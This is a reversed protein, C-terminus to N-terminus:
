KRLAKASARAMSVMQQHDAALDAHKSELDKDGIKGAAASADRHQIVADAHEIAVNRWTGETAKGRQADHKANDEALHARESQATAKASIRASAKRAEASAERAADSWVM